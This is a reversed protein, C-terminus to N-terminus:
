HFSLYTKLTGTLEPVQMVVLGNTFCMDIHCRLMDIKLEALGITWNTFLHFTLNNWHYFSPLEKKGYDLIVSSKHNTM